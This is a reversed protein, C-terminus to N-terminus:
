TDHGETEVMFGLHVPVKQYFEDWNRFIRYVDNNDLGTIILNGNLFAQLVKREPNRGVLVKIMYEDPVFEGDEEYSHNDAMHDTFKEMIFDNLVPGAGDFEWYCANTYIQHQRKITIEIPGDDFTNDDIADPDIIGQSNDWTPYTPAMRDDLQKIVASLLVSAQLANTMMETRVADLSDRLQRVNVKLEM